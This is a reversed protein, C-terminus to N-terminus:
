LTKTFESRQTCIKNWNEKVQQYLLRKPIIFDPNIMFTWTDVQRILDRKLLVKRNNYYMKKPNGRIPEITTINSNGCMNCKLKVLLKAAGRPLSLMIELPDFESNIKSHKINLPALMSFYRAGKPKLYVAHTEPDYRNGSSLVTDNETYKSFDMQISGGTNM